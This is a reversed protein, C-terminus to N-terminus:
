LGFCPEQLGFDCDSARQRASEVDKPGGAQMVETDPQFSAGVSVALITIFATRRSVDLRFSPACPM